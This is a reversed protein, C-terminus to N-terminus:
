LPTHAVMRGGALFVGCENLDDRRDMGNRRPYTRFNQLEACENVCWTTFLYEM